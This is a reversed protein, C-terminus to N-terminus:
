IVIVEFRGQLEKVSAPSKFNSLSLEILIGTHM